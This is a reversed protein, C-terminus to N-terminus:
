NNKEKKLEKLKTIYQEYNETVKKHFEIENMNIVDKGLVSLFSFKYFDIM